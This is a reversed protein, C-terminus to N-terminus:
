KYYTFVPIKNIKNISKVHITGKPIKRIGAARIINNEHNLYYCHSFLSFLIDKADVNCEYIEIIKFNIINLNIKSLFKKANELTDFCVFLGCGKDPKNIRNKYYRKIKGLNTLSYLKKQKNESEVSFIKYVKM